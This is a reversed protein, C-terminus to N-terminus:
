RGVSDGSDQRKVYLFVTKIVQAQYVGDVGNPYLHKVAAEVQEAKTVLGLARLADMLDAYRSTAKAKAKRAVKQGSLRHGKAYFLVPQGNIGCNRRRVELCIRQLEETYIPRRNSVRYVPPPLVGAKTLQYLRAPSLSLMRAMESLTVVAKTQEFMLLGKVCM